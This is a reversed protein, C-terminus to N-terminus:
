LTLLRRVLRLALWAVAAALALITLLLALLLGMSRRRTQHPRELWRELLSLNRLNGRWGIDFLDGVLPVTGGVVDIALNLFMRVLIAAPAGVKFAAYLGYAGLLGGVADGAGPILGIIADWGFRFPTGPVRFRVDLVQALTRFRRLHRDVPL